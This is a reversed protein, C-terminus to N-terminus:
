YFNLLLFFHCRCFTKLINNTEKLLRIFGVDLCSKLRIVPFFNGPISITKITLCFGIMRPNDTQFVKRARHLEHSGDRLKPFNNTLKATKRLECNQVRVVPHISDDIFPSTLMLFLVFASRLKM